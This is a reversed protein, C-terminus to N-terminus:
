GEPNMLYETITLTIVLYFVAQESVHENPRIVPQGITMNEIKMGLGFFDRQQMSGPRGTPRRKELALRRRVEAELQYAIDTPNEPDDQAWGQIILDWQGSRATNDPQRQTSIPEVAMPPEVISVMPLPEDNGVHLRGRVVRARGHEDDRLDFEYGNGPHIDKLAATVARLIELRLPVRTIPM